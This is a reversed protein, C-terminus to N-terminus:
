FSVVYAPIKVSIALQFNCEGHERHTHTTHQATRHSKWNEKTDKPSLQYLNPKKHRKTSRVCYLLDGNSSVLQSVERPLTWISFSLQGLYETCKMFGSLENGYECCGVV